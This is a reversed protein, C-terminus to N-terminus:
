FNNFSLYYTHNGPVGAANQFLIITKGLSTAPSGQTTALAEQNIKPSRPNGSTSEPARLNSTPAGQSRAPARQKQSPQCSHGGPTQYEGLISADLHISWMRESVGPPKWHGFYM